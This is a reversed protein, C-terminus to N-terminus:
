AERVETCVSINNLCIIQGLAESLWAKKPVMISKKLHEYPINGRHFSANGAHIAQRVEPQQLYCVYENNTLSNGSFTFDYINTLKM